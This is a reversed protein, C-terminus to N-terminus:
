QSMWAFYYYRRGYYFNLSNLLEIKGVVFDKAYVVGFIFQKNKIIIEKTFNFPKM